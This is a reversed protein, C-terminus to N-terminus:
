KLYDQIQKELQELLTIVHEKIDPNEIDKLPYLKNFYEWCYYINSLTTLEEEKVLNEKRIINSLNQFGNDIEIHLYGNPLFPKTYSYENSCCNSNNCIILKGEDGSCTDRGNKLSMLYAFYEKPTKDTKITFCESSSNTIIDSISKIKIM